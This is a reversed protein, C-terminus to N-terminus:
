NLYGAKCAGFYICVDFKLLDGVQKPAGYAYDDPLARLLRLSM